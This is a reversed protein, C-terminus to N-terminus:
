DKLRAYGKVLAKTAGVRENELVSLLDTTTVMNGTRIERYRLGNDGRLSILSSQKGPEKNPRKELLASMWSYKKRASAGAMIAATANAARHLTEEAGFRTGEPAVDARTELGLAIRKAVRKEELERQRLAMNRLERTADLKQLPPIVKQKPAQNFAPIGRRRHRALLVTKTVIGSLFEKCAMLMFELMETDVMFNQRMGCEEAAKNMLVGVHYPHLFPGTTRARVPAASGARPYNRTLLEEERLLDVGAAALADNLKNPDDKKEQRRPDSKKTQAAGAAGAAAGSGGGPVGGGVHSPAAPSPVNSFNGLNGSSGSIGGVRGPLPRVPGPRFQPQLYSAGPPPPRSEPLFAPLELDKNSRPEFSSPGPGAEPPHDLPETKIRKAQPSDQGEQTRKTPSTGEM